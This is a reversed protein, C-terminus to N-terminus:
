YSICCAGMYIDGILNKIKVLLIDVNEKWRTEEAGLSANLKESNDLRTGCRDYEDELSKKNAMLHALMEELEKVKKKVANL